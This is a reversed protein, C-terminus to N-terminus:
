PRVVDGLEIVGDTLLQVNVGARHTLARVLRKGTLKALHGCPECLRIVRARVAGISLEQGVLENLALGRVLVNRRLEAFSLDAGLELAGAEIAGADVLTLDRGLALKSSHRGTKKFFRDGELGRGAFARVLPVAIMPEGKAPGLQLAEVRGTV